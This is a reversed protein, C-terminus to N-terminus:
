RSIAFFRPLYCMPRADHYSGGYGVPKKGLASVIMAMGAEVLFKVFRLAESRREGIGHPGPLERDDARRARCGPM